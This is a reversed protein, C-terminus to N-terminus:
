LLYSNIVPHWAFGFSLTALAGHSALTKSIRQAGVDTAMATSIADGTFTEKLRAKITKRSIDILDGLEGKTKTRGKWAKKLSEGRQLLGERSYGTDFRIYTLIFSTHTELSLVVRYM